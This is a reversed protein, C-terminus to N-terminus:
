EVPFFWFREAAIEYDVLEEEKFFINIERKANEDSDSSHVLNYLNNVSFDGRLSGPKRDQAMTKGFTARLKTIVEPGEIVMAVVPGSKIFNILRNYYERGEHEEYHKKALEDTVKMLKMGIIKLGLNEVRKIVEHILSRYVADPKVLVLSRKPTRDM